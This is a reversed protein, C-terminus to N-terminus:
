VPARDARARIQAFTSQNLLEGNVFVPRLMPQGLHTEDIQGTHYHGHQDQYLMLRGKKSRKGMDTVPAKYVERWENNVQVASCKMAWRLTDRNVGQLLAGGMGFAINSASFGRKKLGALIATISKENVGDGQILRVHKLVKYGKSNIDVGFRQALLETCHLAMMLPDGSDPRVVVTAGSQIVQERLVEGWLVEVAHFIDYSDSVVAVVSGPKAFQNLMNRYAEVEQERGWSTITSHEAAPISYGAMPEDYYRQAALVGLITDTGKFNVLHAMSGLAASEASSVGRAGFDHLKFPLEAEANDSTEHLYRRIIAKIQWSRTAVTSPYWLRLMVSELYSPVWFLEPDTSTVTLMVEHSPISFGEPVAWIEVPMYGGHRDVLLRFGAENFPEGHQAFFAAAEKVMAHTIPRTLYERLISQLGFFLVSSYDGGRSEIYSTMAQTHPPYQLYHSAKYSDTNLILNDFM